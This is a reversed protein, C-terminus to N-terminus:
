SKEFRDSTHNVTPMNIILTRFMESVSFCHRLRNAFALGYNEQLCTM